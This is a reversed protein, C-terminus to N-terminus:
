GHFTVVWDPAQYQPEAPRRRIVGEILFGLEATDFYAFEAAGGGRLPPAWASRRGGLGTMTDITAVWENEDKAMWAYVHHIGPGRRDSFERNYHSDGYTTEIIEFGFNECMGQSTFYGHEVSKGRYQPSDLRGM